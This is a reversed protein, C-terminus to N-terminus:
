DMKLSEISAFALVVDDAYGIWDFIFDGYNGLGLQLKPVTALSEIRYQLKIFKVGAKKTNEIYIVYDMITFVFRNSVLKDYM